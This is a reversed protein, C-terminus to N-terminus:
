LSFSCTSLTKSTMRLTTRLTMKLTIRPTMRLTTRLALAGDVGDCNCGANLSKTIAKQIKRSM